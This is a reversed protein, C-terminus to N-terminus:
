RAHHEEVALKGALNELMDRVLSQLDHQPDARVPEVRKAASLIDSQPPHGRGAM